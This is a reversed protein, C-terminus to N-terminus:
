SWDGEPIGAEVRQYVQGQGRTYGGRGEPIGLGGEPIGVRGEPTGVGKQHVWGRSISVEGSM